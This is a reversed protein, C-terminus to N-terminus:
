AGQTTPPYLSPAWFCAPFTVTRMLFTSSIQSRGKASARQSKLMKQWM